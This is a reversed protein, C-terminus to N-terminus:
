IEAGVVLIFLTATSILLKILHHIFSIIKHDKGLFKTFLKQLVAITIFIGLWLLIVFIIQNAAKSSKDRLNIVNFFLHNKHTILLLITLFSLIFIIDRLGLFLYRVAKTLIDWANEIQQSNVQSTLASLIFIILIEPTLKNSLGTLYIVLIVLIGSVGLINLIKVFAPSIKKILPNDRNKTM